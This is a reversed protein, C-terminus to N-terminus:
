KPFYRMAYHITPDPTINRFSFDVSKPPRVIGIVYNTKFGLSPGAMQPKEGVTFKNFPDDKSELDIRHKSCGVCSVLVATSVLANWHM